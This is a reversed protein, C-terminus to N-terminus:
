SVTPQSPPPDGDFTGFVDDPSNQAITSGSSTSGSGSLYVGGGAATGYGYGYPGPAGGIAVNGTM